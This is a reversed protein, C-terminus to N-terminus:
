SRLRPRPGLEYYFQITEGAKIAKDTLLVRPCSLGSDYDKLVHKQYVRIETFLMPQYRQELPDPVQVALGPLCSSSISRWLNISERNMVFVPGVTLRDRHTDNENQELADLRFEKNLDVLKLDIRVEEPVLIANPAQPLLHRAISVQPEAELCAQMTEILIIDPPRDSCVCYSGADQAEYSVVSDSLCLTDIISKASAISESHIDLLTFTVESSSFIAMLPIALTAYPGCGVYLVRAPRSPFRNRVDVIAAYTGRIFTITRMFDDACMAAMKPSIALGNSTRTEGGSIDQQSTPRVTQSNAFITTMEVVEPRLSHATKSLDLITAAVKRVQEAPQNM